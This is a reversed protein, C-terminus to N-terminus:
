VPSAVQDSVRLVLYKMPTKGVNRIGHMVHEPCFVATPAHVVNRQDGILAEASGELLYIIEEGAHEHPPHAAEGPKIVSVHMRLQRAGCKENVFPHMFGREHRHATSEDWPIICSHAM